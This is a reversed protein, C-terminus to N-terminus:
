IMEENIYDKFTGLHVAMSLIVSCNNLLKDRNYNYHDAIGIINKIFASIEANMDDIIKRETENRLDLMNDGRFRYNMVPAFFTGPSIRLIILLFSTM